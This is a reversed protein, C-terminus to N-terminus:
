GSPKLVGNLYIDLAQAVYGEDQRSKEQLLKRSFHRSISDFHVINVLAMASYDPDLDDRLQGSAIAQIICDRLFGHLKTINSHVISAFCATPKNLESYILREGYDCDRNIASLLDAFRIVKDLPSIPEDCLSDLIKMIPEFQQEIVYGYLKEKGGFYYSILAVNVEAAQAVEKVSVAAFGRQAFLETAADVIRAVTPRIALREPKM